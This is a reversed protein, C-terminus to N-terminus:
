TLEFSVLGNNNAKADMKLPKELKSLCPSYTLGKKDGFIKRDTGEPVFYYDKSRVHLVGVEEARVKPKMWFVTGIFFKVDDEALDDPTLNQAALKDKNLDLTAKIEERMQDITEVTHIGTVRKIVRKKNLNALTKAVSM